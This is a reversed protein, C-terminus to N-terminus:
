SRPRPSCLSSSSACRSFYAELLRQDHIAKGIIRGVFRFYHLHYENIASSQALALVLTLTLTLPLTFFARLSPAAGQQAPVHALRGGPAPLARLGPQVHSAGPRRVVGQSTPSCPKYACSRSAPRASLLPAVCRTVGGADVGEEGYFKVNLKGYKIDDGSKRQFVTFSDEFVHARRVNLNINPYHAKQRQTRDHLRQLPPSFTLAARAM